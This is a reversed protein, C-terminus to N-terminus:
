PRSSRLKRAGRILRRLITAVCGLGIVLLTAAPIGHGCILQKPQWSGPSAALFIAMLTILFMRHPKAMPGCYDQPAGAVKCEARIYATLVALLAALYGLEISGGAAYGVGVLVVIDSIRDPVENYLDGVASVTKSEVAVMGDLMNALLRLQVGAAVGLWLLRAAMGDFRSTMVAAVGALIAVIMGAVSIANATVGKRALWHATAIWIRHKRSAIPRRDAPVDAQSM